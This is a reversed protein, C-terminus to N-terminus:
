GPPVPWGSWDLRGAYEQEFDALLAAWALVDVPRPRRRLTSAGDDADLAERLLPGLLATARDSARVTVRHADILTSQLFSDQKKQALAGRDNSSPLGAVPGCALPLLERYYAHQQKDALPVALAARLVDPHTFPMWVEAEPGLLLRPAATIARNQRTLLQTLTAPNPHAAVGAAVQRYSSLAAEYLVPELGPAVFRLRKAGTNEFVGTAWDPHSAAGVGALDARLLADGYGGDLVPLPQGRLEEHFALLWTHMWTQFGMRRRAVRQHGAWDRGRPFVRRQPLGLGEAVEHAFLADRERPHFQYTTWAEVAHGRRLALSALVRSDWGGSLAVVVPRPGAPIAAALLEAMEHPTPARDPLDDWFPRAARRELVGEASVAWAEGATLRQVEAVPTAAAVPAGVTLISAWAGLDPTLPGEDLTLLPEFRTSLYVADGLRRAYVDQLAIGDAHVVVESPGVDVGPALADRCASEWGAPSVEPAPSSWTWGHREGATWRTLGTGAWVQAHPRDVRLTLGPAAALLRRCVAPDPRGLAAVLQRCASSGLDPEDPDAV